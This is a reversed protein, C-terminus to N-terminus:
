RVAPAQGSVAARTLSRRESNPSFTMAASPLPSLGAPYSLVAVLSLTAGGGAM